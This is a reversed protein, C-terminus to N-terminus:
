IPRVTNTIAGRVPHGNQIAVKMADGINHANDIFSKSDMATITQHV